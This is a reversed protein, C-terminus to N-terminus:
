LYVAMNPRLHEDAHKLLPRVADAMGAPRLPLLQGVLWDATAADVRELEPLLYSGARDPFGIIIRTAHSSFLADHQQLSLVLQQLLNEGGGRLDEATERGPVFVREKLTEVLEHGHAQNMRQNYYFFGLAALLGPALFYLSRDFQQM